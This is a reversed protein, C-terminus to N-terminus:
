NNGAITLMSSATGNVKGNPDRFTWEIKHFTFTVEELPTAGKSSSQDHVSSVHVDSMKIVLFEVKKKKRVLSLEAHKIQKGSVAAAFLKPSAKDVKKTIVLSQGGAGGGGGSGAARSNSAGFSWSEVEIWDRHKKDKAAGQIGDLKLFTLGSKNQLSFTAQGGGSPGAPGQPGTPGQQNWAVQTEGEQCASTAPPATGGPSGSSAPDIVRLSGPAETVVNSGNITILGSPGAYCGTIAGDSGPIAAVAVAAGVGLALALPLAIKVARGSLGGSRADESTEGHQGRTARGAGM